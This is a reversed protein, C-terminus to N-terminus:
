KNMKELKEELEKKRQEAEKRKKEKYIEFREEFSKKMISQNNLQTIKRRFHKLSKEFSIQNEITKDNISTRKMRILKDQSVIRSLSKSQYDLLENRYTDIQEAIENLRNKVNQEKKLRLLKIQHLHQARLKDNLDKKREMEKFKKILEKKENERKKELEELREQKEQEKNKNDFKKKKLNKQREKLSWYMTTYKKFQKEINEKKIQEKKINLEIM